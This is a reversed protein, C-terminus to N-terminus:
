LFDYYDNMMSYVNDKYQEISWEPKCSIPEMMKIKVDCENFENLFVKIMGILMGEDKYYQPNIKYNKYKIIIPLVDFRGAFAGTKFKGINKHLPPEDNSDPYIILFNDGNKRNSVKKIIKDVTNDNNKDMLISGVKKLFMNALSWAEATSKLTLFSFPGFLSMLIYHDYLSRHNVIVIMKRDSNIYQLFRNIDVKNYDIKFGCIYIIISSMYRTFDRIFVPDDILYSTIFLYIFIILIFVIFRFVFLFIIM